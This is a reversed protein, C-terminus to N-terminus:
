GKVRQRYNWTILFRQLFTFLILIPVVSVVGAALLPGWEVNLSGM